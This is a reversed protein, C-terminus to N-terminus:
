RFVCAQDTLHMDIVKIGDYRTVSTDYATIACASCNLVNMRVNQRLTAIVQKTRRYITREVLSLLVDNGLRSATAVSRRQTGPVQEADAPDHLPDSEVEVAEGFRYVIGRPVAPDDYFLVKDALFEIRVKTWRCGKPGCLTVGVAASHGDLICTNSSAPAAALFAIALITVILRKQRSRVM